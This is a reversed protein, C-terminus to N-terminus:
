WTSLSCNDTQQFFQLGAFWYDVGLEKVQSIAAWATPIVSSSAAAYADARIKAAELANLVGHVFAGKFSGSSCAIALNQQNNTSM